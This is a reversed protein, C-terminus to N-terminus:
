QIKEGAGRVRKNIKIKEIILFFSFYAGYNYLNYRKSYTSTKEGIYKSGHNNKEELFITLWM